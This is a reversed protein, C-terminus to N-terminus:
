CFSKTHVFENMNSMCVCAHDVCAYMGKCSSSHTYRKRYTNITADQVFLAELFNQYLTTSCAMNHCLFDLATILLLLEGSAKQFNQIYTMIDMAPGIQLFFPDGKLTEVKFQLLHRWCIKQERFAKAQEDSIHFDTQLWKSVEEPSWDNMKVSYFFHTLTTV